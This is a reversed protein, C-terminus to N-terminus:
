TVALPIKKVIKRLSNEERPPLYRAMTAETTFDQGILEVSKYYLNLLWQLQLPTFEQMHFENWSKNGAFTQLRNPCGIVAVGDDRLLAASNKVFNFFCEVHEIVCFSILYDFREQLEFPLTLDELDRVMFSTSISGYTQQAYQVATSSVDLGLVGKAHASVYKSGYGSGSGFDLVTKDTLDFNKCFWQYRSEHAMSCFGGRASDINAPDPVYRVDGDAFAVVGRINTASM